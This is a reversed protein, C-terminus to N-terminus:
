FWGHSWFRPNMKASPAREVTQKIHEDLRRVEPWADWALWLQSVLLALAALRQLEIRGRSAPLVTQAARRRGAMWAMAWGITFAIWVQPVPMVFNGSFLGDVLGAM